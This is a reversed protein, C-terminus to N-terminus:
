DSIQSHSSNLRTSKRDANFMLARSATSGTTGMNWTFAQPRGYEAAMVPALSTNGPGAMSPLDMKSSMSDSFTLKAAPTGVTHCIISACMCDALRLNEVRLRVTIPPEAQGGAM